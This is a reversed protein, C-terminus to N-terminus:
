VIRVVITSGKPARSGSGPSTSAVYQLGLYISARTVQVEFGAAQLAARADALGMGTVRPVTVLVPGQSVVLAVSDGKAGTGSDPTQSVVEGRPVTDSHQRTSTVEFGLKRLATTAEDADKGTWDPVPVPRPGRSVVLDVATGRPRPTGAAPDSSVVQGRPVSDDYRQRVRGQDLKADLLAQQADDLSSGRLRPVDHREPGRSLVVDVTGDKLVRDGPAPDTRLVHGRTVTESYGQGAV